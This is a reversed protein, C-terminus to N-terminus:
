VTYSIRRWSICLPYPKHECVLVITAARNRHQLSAAGRRDRFHLSLWMDSLRECVVQCSKIAGRFGIRYPRFIALDLVHHGSNPFHARARGGFLVSFAASISSIGSIRFFIKLMLFLLSTISGLAHVSVELIKAQLLFKYSDRRRKSKAKQWRKNGNREGNKKRQRANVLHGKLPFLKPSFKLSQLIAPLYDLLLKM